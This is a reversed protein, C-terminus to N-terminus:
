WKGWEDEKEAKAPEKVDWGKWEDGQESGKARLSSASGSRKPGSAARGSTPRGNRSSPRSPERSSGGSWDEDADTMLVGNESNKEEQKDCLKSFASDNAMMLM